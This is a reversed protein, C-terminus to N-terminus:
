QIRLKPGGEEINQRIKHCFLASQEAVLLDQASIQKFSPYSQTPGPLTAFATDASSDDLYLSTPDEEFTTTYMQFNDGLLFIEEQPTCAEDMTFASLEEDDAAVKEASM